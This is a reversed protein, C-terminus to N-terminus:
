RPDNEREKRCNILSQLDIEAPPIRHKPNWFSDGNKVHDLYVQLESVAQKLENIEQGYDM